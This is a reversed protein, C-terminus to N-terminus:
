RSRSAQKEEYIKLKELEIWESLEESSLARYNESGYLLEEVTRGL